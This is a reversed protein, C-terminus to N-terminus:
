IPGVSAYSVVVEETDENALIRVIPHGCGDSFRTGELLLRLKVAAADADTWVPVDCAAANGEIRLQPGEVIYVRLRVYHEGRLFDYASRFRAAHESRLPKSTSIRLGTGPPMEVRERIEHDLSVYFPERMRYEIEMADSAAQSRVVMVMGPDIRPWRLFIITAAVCVIGLVVIAGTKNM